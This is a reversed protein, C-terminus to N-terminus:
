QSQLLTAVRQGNPGASYVTTGQQSDIRKELNGLADYFFQRSIEPYSGNLETIKDLVIRGQKDFEQYFTRNPSESGDDFVTETVSSGDTAYKKESHPKGNITMKVERDRDDYFYQLTRGDASVVSRTRAYNDRTQTYLIKDNLTRTKVVEGSPKYTYDNIVGNDLFERLLRGSQDYSAQYTTIPKGNKIEEIKRVNGALKGIVFSTTIKRVGDIGQTIEVGKNQNNHWFESQGQANKRAIAAYRGDPDPTIQYTWGSDSLVLKSAPNWALLRDGAKFTPNLKEDIGFEYTKGAGGTIAMQTLTRDIAAVVNQGATNQIRPKDGRGFTIQQGNAELGTMENAEDWKVTLRTTGGERIETVREGSRVWDFRRNDPSLMSTIKGNVYILKWGCSAWATFTNGKLEAAWGGDGLLATDSASKRGFYRNWGDPQVLMFRNEELQVVNSELLPVLWGYGGYPSLTDRNSRFNVILPVKLGNGFDFTGLQDWFSLFGRENVSDFHNTPTKWSIGCSLLNGASVAM